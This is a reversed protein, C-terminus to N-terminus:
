NTRFVYPAEIWFFKLKSYTNRLQTQLRERKIMSILLLLTILEPHRRTKELLSFQTNQSSADKLIQCRLLSEFERCIVTKSVTAKFWVQSCRYTKTSTPPNSSGVDANCLRREVLQALGANIKTNSLPISGCTKGNDTPHEVM